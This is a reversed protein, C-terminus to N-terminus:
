KTDLQTRDNSACGNLSKTQWKEILPCCIVANISMASLNEPWDTSIAGQSCQENCFYPWSAYLFLRQGFESLKHKGVMSECGNSYDYPIYCQNSDLEVDAYACRSVGLHAGLLNCITTLVEQPNDLILTAESLENLFRFRQENEALVSESKKQETIDQFFGELYAFSGDPKLVKRLIINATIIGKNASKLKVEDHVWEDQALVKEIIKARQNPDVYIKTINTIKNLFSRLTLIAM